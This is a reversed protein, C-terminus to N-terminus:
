FGGGYLGSARKREILDDMADDGALLYQELIREQLTEWQAQTGRFEARRRAMYADQAVRAAADLRQQNAAQKEAELRKNEARREARLQANRLMNAKIQQAQDYASDIIREGAARRTAVDDAHQVRQLEDLTLSIGDYEYM